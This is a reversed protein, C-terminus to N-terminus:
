ARNAVGAYWGQEDRMVGFLREDLCVFDRDNILAMNKLGAGWGADILGRLRECRRLREASHVAQVSARQRLNPLVAKLCAGLCKMVAGFRDAHAILDIGNDESRLMSAGDIFQREFNAILDAHM